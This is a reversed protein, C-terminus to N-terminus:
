KHQPTCCEKVVENDTSLEPSLYPIGLNLGRLIFLVGILVAIFPLVRNLKSRIGASLFKSIFSIGFMMPVTGLGFLVMYLSSGAVSQVAIAGMLAIYVFGCPLMGNLVGILFVSLYSKKSFLAGMRNKFVLQFPKQLIRELTTSGALAVAVIIVGAIISVGQQMGALKLGFGFVGLVAGLLAYTLVRGLNYLLRSYTHQLLTTGQNPLALAIPGCMGICHLSGFLGTIFATLYIM